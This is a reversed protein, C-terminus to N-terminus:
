TGSAAAEASSRLIGVTVGRRNQEARKVNEWDIRSVDKGAANVIKYALDPLDSPADFDFCVEDPQCSCSM